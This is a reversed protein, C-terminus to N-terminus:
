KKRNGREKMKERIKQNRDTIEQTHRSGRLARKREIIEPLGNFWERITKEQYLGLAMTESFDAIWGPIYVGDEANGEWDDRDIASERIYLEKVLVEPASPKMSSSVKRPMKLQMVFYQEGSSSFIDTEIPTGILRIEDKPVFELKGSNFSMKM